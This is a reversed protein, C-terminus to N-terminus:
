VQVGGNLRAEDSEARVGAVEERVAHGHRANDGEEEAADGELV